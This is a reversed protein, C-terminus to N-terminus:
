KLNASPSRVRSPSATTSTRWSMFSSQPRRPASMAASVAIWSRLVLAIQAPLFEREGLLSTPHVPCLLSTVADGSNHLHLLHVSRVAHSLREGSCRNRHFRQLATVVPEVEIADRLVVAMHGSPFSRDGVPLVAYRARRPRSVPMVGFM